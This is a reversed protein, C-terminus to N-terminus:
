DKTPKAIRAFQTVPQEVEYVYYRKYVDIRHLKGCNPCKVYSYGELMYKWLHEFVYGCKCSVIAVYAPLLERKTKVKIVM